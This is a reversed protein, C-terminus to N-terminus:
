CSEGAAPCATLQRLREFCAAAREFDSAAEYVQRLHELCGRCRLALLQSCSLRRVLLYAEAARDHKLLLGALATRYAIVEPALGIAQRAMREVVPVPAGQRALYYGLDFYAQAEGGDFRIAARCTEAASAPDGCHDCGQAAALAAKVGARPIDAAVMRYLDLALPAKGASLYCDALALRALASLPSLLTARELAAQAAAMELRQRHALGLKQWLSGDEPRASIEDRLRNIAADGVAMTRETQKPSLM